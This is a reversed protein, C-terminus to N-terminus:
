EMVYRRTVAHIRYHVSAM